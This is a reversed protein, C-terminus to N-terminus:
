YFERKVIYNERGEKEKEEEESKKFFGLQELLYTFLDSQSESFIQLPFRYCLM